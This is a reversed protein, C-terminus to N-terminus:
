PGVHARLSMKRFIGEDPAGVHSFGTEDVHQGLIGFQGHSRGCRSFGQKDVMEQVLNEGFVRQGADYAEKVAEVPHNKSVAVLKVGDSEIENKYKLLNDAISM